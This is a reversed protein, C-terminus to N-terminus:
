ASARQRCRATKVFVRESQFRRCTRGPDAPLPKIPFAGQRKASARQEHGEVRPAVKSGPGLLGVGFFALCLACALVMVSVGANGVDAAGQRMPQADRSTRRTM